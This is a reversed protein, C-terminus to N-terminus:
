VPPAVFVRGKSKQEPREGPSNGTIASVLRQEDATIDPAFRAAGAWIPAYRVIGGQGALHQFLGNAGPSTLSLFKADQMVNIPGPFCVLIM